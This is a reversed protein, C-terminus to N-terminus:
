NLFREMHGQFEYDEFVRELQRYERVDARVYDEHRTHMLDLAVVEHGRRKLEKVLNTGIFGAGGTVLIRQTEMNNGEKILVGYEPPTGRM